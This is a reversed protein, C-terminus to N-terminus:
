VVVSPRASSVMAMDPFVVAVFVFAPAGGSDAVHDLVHEFAFQPQGFHHRPAGGGAALRPREHDLRLDDDVILPRVAVGHDLHGAEVARAQQVFQGGRDRLEVEIDGRGMDRGEALAGAVHEVDGIQEARLDVRRRSLGRDLARQDMQQGVVRGRRGSASPESAEGCRGPPRTRYPRGTEEIGFDEIALGNEGRSGVAAMVDLQGEIQRGDSQGGVGRPHCEIRLAPFREIEVPEPRDGRRSKAFQGARLQAQLRADGLQEIEQVFKPQRAGDGRGRLALIDPMMEAKVAQKAPEIRDDRAAVIRAALRSGSGKRM